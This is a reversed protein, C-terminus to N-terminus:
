QASFDRAFTYELLSSVRPAALVRLRL